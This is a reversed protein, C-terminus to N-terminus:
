HALHTIQFWIQNLAPKSTADREFGLEETAQREITEKPVDVVINCRIIIEM